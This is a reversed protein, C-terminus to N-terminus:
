KIPHTFNEITGDVLVTQLNKNVSMLDLEVSIKDEVGISILYDLSNIIEKPAVYGGDSDNGFRKLTHNTSFIKLKNFFDIAKM